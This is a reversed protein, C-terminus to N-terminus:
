DSRMRKPSPCADRAAARPQPSGSASLYPCARAPYTPQIAANRPRSTNRGAGSRCTVIHSRERTQIRQFAATGKVCLDTVRNIKCEHHAIQYTRGGPRSTRPGPQVFAGVCLLAVILWAYGVVRCEQWCVLVPLPPAACHRDDSPELRGRPRRRVRRRVLNWRQPGSERDFVPSLPVCRIAPPEVGTEECTHPM